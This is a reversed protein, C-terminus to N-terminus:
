CPNLFCLSKWCVLNVHAVGEWTIRIGVVPQQWSVISITYRLNGLNWANHSIPRLFRIYLGLPCSCYHPSLHLCPNLFLLFLFLLLFCLHYADSCINALRSCYSHYNVSSLFHLEVVRGCVESLEGLLSWKLYSPSQYKPVPSKIQFVPVLKPVVFYHELLVSSM